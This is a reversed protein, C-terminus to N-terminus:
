FRNDGHTHCDSCNKQQAGMSGTHCTNCLYWGSLTQDRRATLTTLEYGLGVSDDAPVQTTGDKATIVQKMQFLNNFLSPTIPQPTDDPHAQHCAWCPMVDDDVWEGGGYGSKLSANGPGAGHTNVLWSANLIDVLPGASPGSVGAPFSGDHCDMCFESYADVGLGAGALGEFWNTGPVRGDNPDPDSKWPQANNAQHPDHCNVCELKAGSTQQAAYQVDHRDNHTLGDQTTDDATLIATAFGSEADISSIGGSTHCTFCFGEEEEENGPPTPAVDALALLKRKESGHGSGHCGTTGEGFCSLSAVANHAATAWADTTNPPTVGDTFPLTPNAGDYGDADHCAACFVTLKAAEAPDTLPDGTLIALPTPNTPDDPDKLRVRGQKHEDQLHCTECDAADLVGQLHHSARSFESVIERRGGVPGPPENGPADQVTNHCDTCAGGSGWFSEVHPHCVTCNLGRNHNHNSLDPLTIGNEHNDTDTHCVECVGSYITDADDDGDAFSYQLPGGADTGRSVFAVPQVGSNPTTITADNTGDLQTGIMMLNQTGTFTNDLGDHTEHCDTCTMRFAAKTSGVKNTHVNAKRAATGTDPDHCAMCVNEIVPDQLLQQGPSNHLKHCSDCNHNPNLAAAPAGAWALAVMAALALIRLLRASM